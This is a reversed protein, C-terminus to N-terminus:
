ETSPAAKEENRLMEVYHTPLFAKKPNAMARRVAELLYAEPDLGLNRASRLLSYFIASTRAGEESRSGQFNKRGLVVDRIQREAHGNDLPIRADSLFLLLRSWVRDMHDLAMPPSGGRSLRASLSTIALHIADVFIGKVKGM